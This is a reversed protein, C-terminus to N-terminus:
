SKKPEAEPTGEGGKVKKEGEEFISLWDGGEAEAQFVGTAAIKGTAAKQPPQYPAFEDLKARIVDYVGVYMYPSCKTRDVVSQLVEPALQECVALTMAKGFRDIPLIAYGHLFAPEFIALLDKKPSFTQLDSFPLAFHTCVVKALDWGTIFGCRILHPGLPEQPQSQYKAAETIQAKTLVGENALVEGLKKASTRRDIAM